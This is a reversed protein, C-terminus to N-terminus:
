DGNSKQIPQSVRAYVAVSQEQQNDKEHPLPTEQTNKLISDLDAKSYRRHNGPTRLPSILGKKEYRRLTVPSLGLYFAASGIALM